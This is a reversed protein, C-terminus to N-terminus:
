LKKEVADALRAIEGGLRLRTMKANLKESMSACLELFCDTGQDDQLRHVSFDEFCEQRLNTVRDLLSQLKKLAEEPKEAEISMQQREIEMVTRIYHDLKHDKMRDKKKQYWKYGFFGAVILSVFFSRLGEWKEVFDASLLNKSEPNYVGLAGDHVPFFPRSMAFAKGQEFLEGLRNEKQFPTKLIEQIIKEVLGRELDNRAILHAGTAVTQIDARPVAEGEFQYMGRPVQFPSLHLEMTALAENNPVSLFRVRGSRALTRFVDAQMGVTMFAADLKDEEFAQIVELYNLNLHEEGTTINLSQLLLRSMPYDGSLELGLNVVKGKLDQLSEIGSGKRVAIHLPQSYLNAVFAVEDLKDPDIKLADRDMLGPAFQKLNKRAGPQFLALDAKGEAVLKLNELTGKTTVVEVPWNLQTVVNSLSLAIPHYLGKEPGGAIVITRNLGVLAKVLQYLPVCILVSLLCITIWKRKMGYFFEPL